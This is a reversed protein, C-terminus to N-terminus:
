EAACGVMSRLTYVGVPTGESLPYDVCAPDFGSFAAALALQACRHRVKKTTGIGVGFQYNENSDRLSMILLHYDSNAQM